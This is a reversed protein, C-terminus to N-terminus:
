DSVLCTHVLVAYRSIASPEKIHCSDYYLCRQCNLRPNVACNVSTAAGTEADRFIAVHFMICVYGVFYMSMKLWILQIIYIRIHIYTEILIHIRKLLFQIAKYFYTMSKSDTVSKLIIDTDVQLLVPLVVHHLYYICHVGTVVMGPHLSSITIGVDNLRRQLAYATMVQLCCVECDAFLNLLLAKSIKCM